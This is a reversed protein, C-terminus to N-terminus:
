PQIARLLYRRVRAPTKTVRIHYRTREPVNTVDIVTINLRELDVRVRRICEERLEECLHPPDTLVKPM